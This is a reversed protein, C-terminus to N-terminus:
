MGPILVLGTIECWGPTVSSLVSYVDRWRVHRKTTLGRKFATCQRRSLLPKSSVLRRSDFSSQYGAKQTAPSKSVFGGISM